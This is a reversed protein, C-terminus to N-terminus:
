KEDFIFLEYPLIWEEEIEGILDEKCGGKLYDYSIKKSNNIEQATAYIVTQNPPITTTTTTTTTSTTSTSTSTSTSTTNEPKLTTSTSSITTSTQIENEIEVRESVTNRFFIFYSFASISILITLLVGLRLNSNM